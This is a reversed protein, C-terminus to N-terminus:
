PCIVIEIATSSDAAGAAIILTQAFVTVGVLAPQQPIALNVRASGTLDAPQLGLVVLSAPDVLAVENAIGYPSLDVHAPALALVFGCLANTPALIVELTPFTGISPANLLALEAVHTGPARAHYDRTGCGSQRNQANPTPVPLRVFISDGDSIRGTAVDASQQGFDFRDLITTGDSAFLVVSEGGAALKFNAHMPGQLGDEDCWVLLTGGPPITTNAPIQWKARAPDDSLWQGGIVVTAAASNYLEIWDEFEGNEDVIGLTNQAVFENIRVPTQAAAVAVLLTVAAIRSAGVFLAAITM